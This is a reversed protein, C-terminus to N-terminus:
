VLHVLGALESKLINDQPFAHGLHQRFGEGFDVGALKGRAAATTKMFNLYEDVGHHQLLWDRQSAHCCLMEEKTQVGEAIDVVIQPKIENGFNDKGELPDVYYLYPVPEFIEVSEIEINPIGGSFCATMAIKSATMHDVLYDVPSQAFVIGPRVLRILEIAKRLTQRDYMIYGDDCELCHYQGALIKVAQASEARRIKSIQEKNYRVSGCDGPTMSAVHIQWGKEHLLALTGTCGFEADDPHACLALAVNPEDM